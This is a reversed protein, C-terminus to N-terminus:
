NPFTSMAFVDNPLNSRTDSRVGCNKPPVQFSSAKQYNGKEVELAAFGDLSVSITIKNGLDQAIKIAELFYKRAAEIDGEGFAAAALNNLNDSLAVKNDLERLIELSQEFYDRAIKNEGQTRAVDGLFNLSVAIGFRDETERSLLLGSEFFAKAASFDNDHLALLGLGRNAVAIARKDKADIGAQLAQGYAARGRFPRGFIAGDLKFRDSAQSKFRRSYTGSPLENAARLRKYGETLHSHM